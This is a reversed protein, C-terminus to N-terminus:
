RATVPAGMVAEAKEFTLSMIDDRNKEMVVILSGIM